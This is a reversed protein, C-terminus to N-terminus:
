HLIIEIFYYFSINGKSELSNLYKILEEACETVLFFMNRMKSGTFAPSLTARMERWKNGKISVLNRGFMPEVNPDITFRHDIFHDFDKVTIQKILEPDNVLVIPNRFEYVGIFRFNTYVIVYNESIYLM